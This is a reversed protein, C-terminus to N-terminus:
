ECTFQTTATCATETRLRAWYASLGDPLRRQIGYGPPVVFEKQPVCLLEGTIDVELTFRVTATGDHVVHLARHDYSSFLFPDSIEGTRVDDRNWVNGRGIVPGLQDLDSPRAFWLNSQSRGPPALTGKAKRRNLFESKASDDFGLVIQDQWRTLDGVVKLYSSRPEGGASHRPSFNRPFRWFAGHVTMMPDDEGVDRSRPWETSWGHAGDYSHSSKPLRDTHWRGARFWQPM